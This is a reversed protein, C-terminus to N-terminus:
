VYETILVYGAAGSGGNAAASTGASAAGGGGGGYVSANTGAASTSNVGVATATGSFYSAGGTGSVVSTVALIGIGYSFGGDSGGVAIQFTGSGSGHGGGANATFANPNAGAGGGGGTGGILSGVTTNGGAVGGNAGVGVGGAGGTGITITQSTGITTSSFNGRAYGGGGGGGAGACLVGTSAAAGGGGGGGGVAEIICYKMGPTPTYTGSSNFTQVVTQQFFSGPKITQTTVNITSSNIYELGGYQLTGAGTIVNTNLSSVLSNYLQLTFGSGISISSATGSYMSSREISATSSGALTIAITNINQCSVWADILLMSGTSSCALPSNIQSTIVQVQGALCVPLTLSNGSNTINCNEIRMIGNTISYLSIGTTGLDGVCSQLNINGSGNNLFFPTNNSATILCNNLNISDAGTCSVVFNSNTQLNLGTLSSNAAVGGDSFTGIVVVNNGATGPGCFSSLSVINVGNKLTVNETYTGDRVYVTDGSSASNIAGQITTHTGNSLTPSVIWKYSGFTNTSLQQGM